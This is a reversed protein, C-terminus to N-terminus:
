WVCMADSSFSSRSNHGHDAGLPQRRDRFHVRRSFFYSSFLATEIQNRRLDLLERLTKHVRHQRGTRHRSLMSRIHLSTLFFDVDRAACHNKKYHLNPRAPPLPPIVNAVVRIGATRM